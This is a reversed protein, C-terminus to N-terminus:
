FIGDSGNPRYKQMEQLAETERKRADIKIDILAVAAEPCDRLNELRAVLDAERRKEDYWRAGAFLLVAGVVILFMM